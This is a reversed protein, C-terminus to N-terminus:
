SLRRHSSSQAQKSDARGIIIRLFARFGSCESSPIPCNDVDEEQAFDDM